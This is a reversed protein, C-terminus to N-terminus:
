VAEFYVACLFLNRYIHCHDTLADVSFVILLESAKHIFVQVAVTEWEVVKNFTMNVIFLYLISSFLFLSPLCNGSAKNLAIYQLLYHM